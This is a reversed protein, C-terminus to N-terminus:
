SSLMGRLRLALSLASPQALKSPSAASQDPLGDTSGSKTHCFAPTAMIMLQSYTLGIILGQTAQFTCIESGPSLSEGFVWVNPSCGKWRDPLIDSPFYFCNLFSFDSLQKMRKGNWEVVCSKLMTIVLWASPLLTCMLYALGEKRVDCVAFIESLAFALHWGCLWGAKGIFTYCHLLLSNSSKLLKSLWCTVPLLTNM